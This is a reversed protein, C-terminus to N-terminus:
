VHVTWADNSKAVAESQDLAYAPPRGAKRYAVMYSQMIIEPATGGSNCGDGRCPRPVYNTSNYLGKYGVLSELGRRMGKTADVVWPRVAGGPCWGARGYQWTGYQNPTVGLPVQQACGLTSGAGTLTHVYKHEDEAVYVLKDVAAAARVSFAHETECFEACNENDTGWGHGSIVSYIEVKVADHPIKVLSPAHLKNYSADFTGGSFLFTSKTPV